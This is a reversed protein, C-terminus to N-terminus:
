PQPRVKLEYVYVTKGPAEYRRLFVYEIDFRGEPTSVRATMDRGDKLFGFREVDVRDYSAWIVYRVGYYRYGLLMFKQPDMNEPIASFPYSEHDSYSRLLFFNARLLHAEMPADRLSEAAAKFPDFPPVARAKCFWATNWAPAMVLALAVLAAATKRGPRARRSALAILVDAGLAAPLLVVPALALIFRDRYWWWVAHLGVYMVAFGAFYIQERRGLRAFGLAAALLGVAGFERLSDRLM